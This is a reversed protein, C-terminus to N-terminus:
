GSKQTGLRSETSMLARSISSYKKKWEYKGHPVPELASLISALTCVIWTHVRQQTRKEILDCHQVGITKKKYKFM